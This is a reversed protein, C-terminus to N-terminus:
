RPALALLGTRMNGDTQIQTSTPEVDAQEVLAALKDGLPRRRRIGVPQPAEGVTESTESGTRATISDIFTTRARCSPSCPPLHQDGVRLLDLAQRPRDSSTHTTTTVSEARTARFSV